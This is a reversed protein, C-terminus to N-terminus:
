RPTEWQNWPPQSNSFSFQTIWLRICLMIKMHNEKGPLCEMSYLHVKQGQSIKGHMSAFLLRPPLKPLFSSHKAGHQAPKEGEQEKATAGAGMSCVTSSGSASPMLCLWYSRFPQKAKSILKPGSLRLLLYCPKPPFQFSFRLALTNWGSFSAECEFRKQM